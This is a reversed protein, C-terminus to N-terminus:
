LYRGALLYKMERIKQTESLTIEVIGDTDSEDAYYEVRCSLMTSIATLSQASYGELHHRNLFALIKANARRDAAFDHLEGISAPTVPLSVVLDVEQVQALQQLRISDPSSSDCLEESFIAAHGESRLRSRLESRLSAMPNPSGSGPGWILVSVPIKKVEALREAIRPRLKRLLEAAEPSLPTDPLRM